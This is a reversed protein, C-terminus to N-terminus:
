YEKNPSEMISEDFESVCGICWEEHGVPILHKEQQERIIMMQTAVLDKCKDCFWMIKKM